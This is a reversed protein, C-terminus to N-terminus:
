ASSARRPHKEIDSPLLVACRTPSKSVALQGRIQRALGQVLQLGSAAINEIDFGPGGDQVSLIINDHERVLRAFLTTHRGERTGYKAANTLLENLILALPMAVDTSLSIDSAEQNITIESAFSTRAAAVVSALFEAANFSMVESTTYLVKQAAAMAAVRASAERLVAQAEQNPTKNASLLLLAQLTQMNNKVRHNLENFLILQQSEAQKRESVDM